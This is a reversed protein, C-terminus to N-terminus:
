ARARLVAPVLEARRPLRRALRLARRWHQAAADSCGAQTMKTAAYSLVAVQEHTVDISSIGLRRLLADELRGHAPLPDPQGAARLRAAERVALQAAATTAADWSAQSPHLRYHLLPEALNALEYREALRLWLDLDECPSAANRYGGVTHYASRRMVVTPHFFVAERQLRERITADDPPVPGVKIPAGAPDVYTVASGVMAVAPHRTLFAVQRTLRDPLAVDDADMRALLDARAVDCGARLAAGLGVAPRPVVRVRRDRDAYQALLEATGDTSGDDVVVLELATLTQGLISEVAAVLHVGGDRVPM